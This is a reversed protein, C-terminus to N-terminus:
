DTKTLEIHNDMAMQIVDDKPVFRDKMFHGFGVVRGFYKETTVIRVPVNKIESIRLGDEESLGLVEVITKLIDPLLGGANIGSFLCCCDFMMELTTINGFHAILNIDVKELIANQIFLGSEYIEEETNAIDKYTKM